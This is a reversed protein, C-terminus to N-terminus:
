KLRSCLRKLKIKEGGEMAAGEYEKKESSQKSYSYDEAKGKTYSVFELNDCLYSLEYDLGDETIFHYNLINGYVLEQRVAYDCFIKQFDETIGLERRLLAEAKERGANMQEGATAEPTTSDDTMAATSHSAWYLSGDAAEFAFYYYNHLVSYCVHYAAVSSQANEEADSYYANLEMGDIPKQYLNQMLDGAQAIAQEKTISGTSVAKEIKEAEEKERKQKEEGNQVGLSYDRKYIFDILQLLEEDTLEREPFYFTSTGPLFMITSGDFQSAETIKNIEGEPFRGEATYSETLQNMREAEESTLERSYTDANVQADALEELHTEIEEPQVGSLRQKLMAQAAGVTVPLAVFLVAALIVAARARPTFYRNKVSVEKDPLNELINEVREQLSDPIKCAEKQIRKKIENDRLKNM